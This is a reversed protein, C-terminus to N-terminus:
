GGSVLAVGIRGLVLAVLALTLLGPLRAVRRLEGQLRRAGIWLVLALGAAALEWGLVSLARDMGRHFGDGTAPQLGARIAAGQCLVWLALLGLARRATM